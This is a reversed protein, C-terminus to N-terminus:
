DIVGEIEAKLINQMKMAEIICLQQGEVVKDGPQVFTSVITGPMPSIISKAYDIQVPEPMHHKYKFQAATYVSMKITNGKMNFRYSIGDNGVKDYQLIKDEGEM